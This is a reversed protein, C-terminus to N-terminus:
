TIDLCLATWQGVADTSLSGVIDAGANKARGKVKREPDERPINGKSPRRGDNQTQTRPAPSSSQASQGRQNNGHSFGCSHRM